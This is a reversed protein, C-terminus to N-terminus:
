KIENNLQEAKKEIWWILDLSPIPGALQQKWYALHEKGTDSLLRESEWRSFDSYQIPLPALNVPKGTCAADYFKELEEFLVGFSWGDTIAHHLNLFWLYEESGTRYLRVRYLRRGKLDFPTKADAVAEGTVFKMHESAPQSRLDRFEFEFREIPGVVQSVRGDRIELHTRLIDHRNELEQWAIRLAEPDLPGQWRLLFPVNYVEPREMSQDMFWLRQQGRSAAFHSLTPSAAAHLIPGDRDDSVASRIMACMGSVTRCTFLEAETLRAHFEGAVRNLIMIASLSDGGLEFFDAEPDVEVSEIQLAEAWITTVRAVLSRGNADVNEHEALEISQDIDCTTV